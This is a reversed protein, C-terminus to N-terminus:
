IVSNNSIKEWLMTIEASKTKKLLSDYDLINAIAMKEMESRTELTHSGIHPTLIVNKLKDFPYIKKEENFVDIAAGLILKKKLSNALTINDIVSARSTNILISNSKMSLIMKKDIMKKTEKTSPLHITIIDSNKFIYNLSKKTIKYKLAFDTDWTRSYSIIKPGFNSLRKVVEKGISGLGVIGVTLNRIDRGQIPNWKGKKLDNSMTHVHRLLSIMNSVCLEAVAVSPKDSTVFVKVGSERAAILDINDTGVGVRSIAKLNKFEKFFEKSYKELGAIIYDVGKYIHKDKPFILEQKSKNYIIDFNNKKLLLINEKNHDYFKDIAILIKKM